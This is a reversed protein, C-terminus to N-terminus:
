GGLEPIAVSLASTAFPALLSAIAVPFTFLSGHLELTRVLQDRAAADEATTVVAPPYVALLTDVFAVAAFAAVAIRV